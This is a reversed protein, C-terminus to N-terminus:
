TNSPPLTYIQTLAGKSALQDRRNGSCVFFFETECFQSVRRIFKEAKMSCSSSISPVSGVANEARFAREFRSREIFAPTSRIGVPSRSNTWDQSLISVNAHSLASPRKSFFLLALFSFELATFLRYTDWAGRLIGAFLGLLAASLPGLM